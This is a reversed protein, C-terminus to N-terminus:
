PTSGPSTPGPQPPLMGPRLFNRLEMLMSLGDKPLLAQTKPDKLAQEITQLLHLVLADKPVSTGTYAMELNSIIERTATRRAQAVIKIAEMEAQTAVEKAESEWRARWADVMQERVGAHRPAFESFNSTLVRIGRNRLVKSNKLDQPEYFALDRKVWTDDKKLPKKGKLIVFQYSLVGQNRMFRRFEPLVREYLPFQAPNNFQYLRDYDEDAILNRLHEVAIHIPLETWPMPTSDIAELAKSYLAAFVRDADFHYPPSDHGTFEEDHDRGTPFHTKVYQHIERQDDEDLDDSMGEIRNRAKNLKIVRIDSPLAADQWSGKSIDWDYTVYLTEPKDGLTFIVSVPVQIELGDRTTLRVDANRFQRRLDAIGRIKENMNTFIIGPGAIRVLPVPTLPLSVLGRLFDSVRQIISNIFRTALRYPLSRRLRSILDKGTEVHEWQRELAIASCLDVFAVGPRTNQMETEDAIAIGKEISVAPGHLNFFYRLLRQFVLRRELSTQVPLVFQSVVLAWIFFLFFIGIFNYILKVSSYILVNGPPGLHDKFKAGTFWDLVIKLEGLFAVLFTLLFALAVVMRWFKAQRYFKEQVLFKKKRM